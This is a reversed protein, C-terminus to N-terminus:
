GAGSANVYITTTSAPVMVIAGSTSSASPAAPISALKNTGGSDSYVTVSHTTDLNEVLLWGLSTVSGATGIDLAVVATGIIQTEQVYNTGTQPLTWSLSMSPHARTATLGLTLTFNVVNAM